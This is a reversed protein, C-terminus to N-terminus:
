MHGKVKGVHKRRSGSNSNAPLLASLFSTFVQLPHQPTSSTNGRGYLFHPQPLVVVLGVGRGRRKGRPGAALLNWCRCCMRLLWVWETQRVSFTLRHQRRQFKSALPFRYPCPTPAATHLIYQGAWVPFSTPQPTPLTTCHGVHATYAHPNQTNITPHTAFKWHGLLMQRLPVSHTM